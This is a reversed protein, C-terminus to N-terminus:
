NVNMDLVKVKWRIGTRCRKEGLSLSIIGAGVMAGSIIYMDPTFVQENNILHNFAIIGFLAASGIFMFRGFKKPFAFQKYVSNIEGICVDFPRLEAVSIVTDHIAWLKGKLLTDQRSVRIKMFDGTHYFYRRSTGTKEIMLTKQALSFGAIFCLALLVLVKKM